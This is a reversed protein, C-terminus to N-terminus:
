WHGRSLWVTCGAIIFVAGRFYPAQLLLMTPPASFFISEPSAAGTSQTQKSDVHERLARQALITTDDANERGSNLARQTLSPPLLSVSFCVSFLEAWEDSDSDLERGDVGAEM